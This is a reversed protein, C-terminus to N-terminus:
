KSKRVNKKLLIVNILNILYLGLLLFVVFYFSGTMNFIIMSLNNGLLGAFGWASLVAGHVRSLANSDYNDSLISPCTSFGGGYTANILLISVLIAPFYLGSLIMFLISLSSIIIWINLRNKLIDSIWAFVLRFSGNFLGAFLMLVIVTGHSVSLEKFIGVSVGILALGASINLFMFLWSHIFYRDKFLKIYSFDINIYKSKIVAYKPKRLLISGVIMMPFYIAALCLFIYQIGVIPFLFHFLLSCLSSGLGFSIISVSSALGKHKPFWLLITKVPTM